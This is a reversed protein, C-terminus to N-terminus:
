WGFFGDGSCSGSGYQFSLSVSIYVSTVGFSHCLLFTCAVCGFKLVTDYAGWAVVLKSCKECYPLFQPQEFKGTAQVIQSDANSRAFRGLSSSSSAMCQQGFSSQSWWWWWRHQQSLLAQAKMASSTGIRNNKMIWWENMWWECSFLSFIFSRSCTLIMGALLQECFNMYKITDNMKWEKFLLM